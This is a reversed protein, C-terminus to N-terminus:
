SHTHTHTHKHTQAIGECNCPPVWHESAPGRAVLRLMAKVKLQHGLYLVGQEDSAPLSLVCVWVCLWSDGDDKRERERERKSKWVDGVGIYETMGQCTFLPTFPPLFSKTNNSRHSRPRRRIYIPLMSGPSLDTMGAQRETVPNKADKCTKQTNIPVPNIQGGARINYCSIVEVDVTYFEWSGLRLLWRCMYWRHCTSGGIAPKPCDSQESFPFWFAKKYSNIFAASM